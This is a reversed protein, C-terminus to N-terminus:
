APCNRAFRVCPSPSAISRRATLHAILGSWVILESVTVQEKEIDALIQLVAETEASEEEAPRGLDALVARWRQQWEAIGAEAAHRAATAGQLEKTAQIRLTELQQRRKQQQQNADALRRSFDAIRM